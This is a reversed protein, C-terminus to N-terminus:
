EFSLDLWPCNQRAIELSAQREDDNLNAALQIITLYADYEAKLARCIREQGLKTVERTVPLRLSAQDRNHIESPTAITHREQGLYENVSVWDQWLFETRVVLTTKNAMENPSALLSMIKVTSFFIHDITKVKGHMVARALNTCDTTNVSKPTASINPYYYDEPDDGIAEAFQEFTPFCKYTSYGQKYLRQWYKRQEVFVNRPHSYTYASAIRSFPDRSTWVYFEYRHQHLLKEFDPVHYYTTLFSIVSENPIDHRCPKPIFSHCGHRLQSALTSGGTKGLHLFAGTTNPPLLSISQLWNQLREDKESFAKVPPVSVTDNTMVNEDKNYFYASADYDSSHTRNNTVVVANPKVIDPISSTAKDLAAFTGLPRQQIRSTTTSNRNNLFSVNQSPITMKELSTFKQAQRQVDTQSHIIGFVITIIILVKFKFRLSSTTPIQNAEESGNEQGNNNGM